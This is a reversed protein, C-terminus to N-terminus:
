DKQHDLSQKRSPPTEKQNLPKKLPNKTKPHRLGDEHRHPTPTQHHSPQSQPNIWGTRRIFKSLIGPFTKVCRLGEKIVSPMKKMLAIGGKVCGAASAGIALDDIVQGVLAFWEKKRYLARLAPTDCIVRTIGVLPTVVHNIYFHPVSNNEIANDATLSLTDPDHQTFFTSSLSGMMSIHSLRELERGVKEEFAEPTDCRRAWELLTAESPKLAAWVTESIMAGAAGAMPDKNMMAAMGAGVGGHLIKHSVPDLDPAIQGIHNAAVAGLVRGALTRATGELSIKEGGLAKLSTHFALDVGQKQAHHRLQGQWDANPLLTGWGLASGVAGTIGGTAMSLGIMRADPGRKEFVMSPLDAALGTVGAGIMGNSLSAGLGSLGLGETVLGAALSTGGTCIALAVSAASATARLAPTPGQTKRYDHYREPDRNEIWLHPTEHTVDHHTGSVYDIVGQTQTEEKQWFRSTCTRGSSLSYSTQGQKLYTKPATMTCPGITSTHTLVMADGSLLAVADRGTIRAGQSSTHSMDEFSTWTRKFFNQGTTQTTHQTLSEQPHVDEIALPGGAKLLVTQGELVPAALTMQTHAVLNLAGQSHHHSPAYTLRRYCSEQMQRGKKEVHYAQMCLAMADDQITNAEIVTQTGSFTSVGKMSLAGQPAKLCLTDSVKFVTPILDDHYNQDDLYRRQRASALDLDGTLAQFSLANAEVRGQFFINKLAVIDIKKAKIGLSQADELPAL